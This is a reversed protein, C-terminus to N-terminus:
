VVRFLGCHTSLKARALCLRLVVTSCYRFNQPINCTCFCLPGRYRRVTHVASRAKEPLTRKAVGPSRVNLFLIFTRRPTNTPRRPNPPGEIPHPLLRPMNLYVSVVTKAALWSLRQIKVRLGADNRRPKGFGVVCAGRRREGKKGCREREQCRGSRQRGRM